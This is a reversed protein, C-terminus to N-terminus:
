YEVQRKVRGRGEGEEGGGGGVFRMDLHLVVRGSKLMALVSRTASIPLAKPSHLEHADWGHIHRPVLNRGIVLLPLPRCWVRQMVHSPDKIEVHGVGDRCSCFWCRLTVHALGLIDGGPNEGEFLSYMYKHPHSRPVIIPHPTRWLPYEEPTTVMEVMQLTVRAVSMGTM